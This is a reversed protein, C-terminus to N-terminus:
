KRSNISGFLAGPNFTCVFFDFRIMKPGSRLLFIGSGLVTQIRFRRYPLHCWNAFRFVSNVGMLIPGRSNGL